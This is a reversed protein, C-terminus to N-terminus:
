SNTSTTDTSIRYYFSSPLKDFVELGQEDTILVFRDKTIDTKDAESSNSFTPSSNAAAFMFGMHRKDNLADAVIVGDKAQPHSILRDYDSGIIIEGNKM